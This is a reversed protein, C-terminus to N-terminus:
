NRWIVQTSPPPPDEEDDPEPIRPGAPDGCSAFVAVLLVLFAGYRLKKM